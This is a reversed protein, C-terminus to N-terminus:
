YIIIEELFWFFRGLFKNVFNCKGQTGNEDFGELKTTCMSTIAVLHGPLDAMESVSAILRWNQKLYNYM